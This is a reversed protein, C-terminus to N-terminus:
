SSEGINEGETVIRSILFNNVELLMEDLAYNYIKLFHAILVNISECFVM